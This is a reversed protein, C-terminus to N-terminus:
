CMDFLDYMTCIFSEMVIGGLCVQLNVLVDLPMLFIWVHM